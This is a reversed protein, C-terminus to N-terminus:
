EQFRVQDDKRPYIGSQSLSNLDLEAVSQNPKSDTVTVRAIIEGDRIVSGTSGKRIDSESGGEVLLYHWNPNVYLVSHVGRPVTPEENNSSERKEPLVQAPSSKRPELQLIETMLQRNQIRLERNENRLTKVISKLEQIEAQLIEPPPLEAGNLSCACIGLILVCFKTM